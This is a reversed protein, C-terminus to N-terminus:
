SAACRVPMVTQCYGFSKPESLGFDQAFAAALENFVELRIGEVRCHQIDFADPSKTLRLFDAPGFRHLFTGQDYVALEHSRTCLVIALLLPAVGARVGFPPKRLGELLTVVPVRDGRASEITDILHTLSPRLRLM